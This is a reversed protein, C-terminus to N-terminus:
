NAWGVVGRLGWEEIKKEPLDPVKGCRRGPAWHGPPSYLRHSMTGLVVLYSVCVPFKESIHPLTLLMMM